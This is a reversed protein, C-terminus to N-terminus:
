RTTIQKNVAISLSTFDERKKNDKQIRTKGKQRQLFQATRSTHNPPYESAIKGQNKETV